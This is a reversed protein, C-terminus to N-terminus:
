GNDCEKWNPINSKNQQTLKNKDQGYWNFITVYYEQYVKGSINNYKSIM